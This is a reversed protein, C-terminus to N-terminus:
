AWFMIEIIKKMKTAIAILMTKEIGSKRESAEFPSTEEEGEKKMARIAIRMTTLKIKVTIRDKNM